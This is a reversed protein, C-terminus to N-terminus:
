EQKKSTLNYTIAFFGLGKFNFDSRRFAKDTLDEPKTDFPVNDGVEYSSKLYSVRSGAFGASLIVREEQGMIAGIGVFYSADELNTSKLGLGFSFCPKILSLWRPSVHLMAGLSPVFNNRTPNEKITKETPSISDLRYSRDYLEPTLTLFLGTSFDIKAGGRIPLPVSFKEERKPTGYKLDKKPTIEIQYTILDKEAILPPSVVIFTKTNNIQDYLLALNSFLAKYDFAEVKGQQVQIDVYEKTQTANLTGLAGFSSKVKGFQSQVADRLAQCKRLITVRTVPSGSFIIGDASNVENKIEDQTKNEVHILLLVDDYLQKSIELDRLAEQYRAAEDEFSTGAVLAVAGSPAPKSFKEADFFLQFVPPPDSHFSINEGKVKVDYLFTNIDKIVFNSPDKLKVFKKGTPYNFPTTGLFDYEIIHQSFAFSSVFLLPAVLNFHKM